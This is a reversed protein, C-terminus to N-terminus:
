VKVIFEHEFSNKKYTAQVFEMNSVVKGSHLSYKKMRTDQM